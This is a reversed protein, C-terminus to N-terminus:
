FSIRIVLEIGLILIITTLLKAKTIIKIFNALVFVELLVFCDLLSMIEVFQYGFIVLLYPISLKSYIFNNKIIIFPYFLNVVFPLLGIWSIMIYCTLFRNFPLSITYMYRAFLYILGSKFILMFLYAVFGGIFLRLFFSNSKHYQVQSINGAFIILGPVASVSTLLVYPHCSCRVFSVLKDIM